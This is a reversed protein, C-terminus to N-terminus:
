TLQSTLADREKMQEITMGIGSEREIMDLHEIRKMRAMNAPNREHGEDTYTWAEFYDMLFITARMHSMSRNSMAEQVEYTGNCFSYFESDLLPSPKVHPPLPEEEPARRERSLTGITEEIEPLLSEWREPVELIPICLHDGTDQQIMHIAEMINPHSETTIIKMKTM